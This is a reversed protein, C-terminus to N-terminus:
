LQQSQIGLFHFKHSADYRKMSYVSTSHYEETMFM